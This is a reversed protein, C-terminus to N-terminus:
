EEEQALVATHYYLLRLYEMQFYILPVTNPLTGGVVGPHM